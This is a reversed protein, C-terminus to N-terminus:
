VNFVIGIFIQFSVCKLIVILIISSIQKLVQGIEQTELPWNIETPHLENDMSDTSDHKM